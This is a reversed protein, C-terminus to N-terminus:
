LPIQKSIDHPFNEDQWGIVGVVGQIVCNDESHEALQAFKGQPRLARVARPRPRCLKRTLYAVRGSYCVQRRPAVADHGIVGFAHIDDAAQRRYPIMVFHHIADIRLFICASAHHWVGVAIGYEGATLNWVLGESQISFLVQKRLHKKRPEGQQVQVM